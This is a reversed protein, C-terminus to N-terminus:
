RRGTVTKTPQNVDNDVRIMAGRETWATAIAPRNERIVAAVARPSLTTAYMVVRRDAGFLQNHEDMAERDGFNVMMIRDSAIGHRMMHARVAAVRRMALDENYVDAGTADAHGELVLRQRPNNNLWRAATDLQSVAIEDLTAKDHEFTVVDIPQIPHEADPAAVFAKDVHRR